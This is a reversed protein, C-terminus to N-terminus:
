TQENLGSKAKMVVQLYCFNLYDGIYKAGPMYNYLYIFYM